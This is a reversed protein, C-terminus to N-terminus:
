SASCFAWELGKFIRTHKKLVSGEVGPAVGADLGLLPPCVHM